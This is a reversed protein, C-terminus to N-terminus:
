EQEDAGVDPRTNSHVLLDVALAYAGSNAWWGFGKSQSVGRRAFLVHNVVRM